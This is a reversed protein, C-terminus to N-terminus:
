KSRNYYIDYAIKDVVNEAFFVQRLSNFLTGIDTIATGTIASLTTVTGDDFTIQMDRKKTVSAQGDFTADIFTVKANVQLVGKLYIEVATTGTKRKIQVDGITLSYSREPHRLLTDRKATSSTEDFLVVNDKSLSFSTQISDNFTGKYQAVYGNTFVYKTTYTYGNAASNNAVINLDGVNANNIAINSVLKHDFSSYNDSNTYYDSVTITFNNALTTDVNPFRMFLAPNKVKSEPLSVVMSNSAATKTFYRILPVFGGYKTNQVAKYTYIGSISALDINNAYGDTTTGSKLLNTSGLTLIKYGETKTIATIAVSTNAISQNLSEKLTTSSGSNSVSNDSCNWTFTGLLVFLASVLISKKM